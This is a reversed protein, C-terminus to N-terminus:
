NGNRLVSITKILGEKLLITPEWGLESKIFKGNGWCGYIDRPTSPLREIPYERPNGSSQLIEQILESVTTKVGTCVNFTKSKAKPNLGLMLACVVDSIFVFDRYRELGGKVQLSLGNLVFHLYISVMGQKLDIMNQGPGYVNFLRFIVTEM